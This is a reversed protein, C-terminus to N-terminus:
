MVISDIPSKVKVIQDSAVHTYIMTTKISNHGLLKQIVRIDTGGELLHTAFSHRLTHLTVPKQIGAKKTSRKVIKLASSRSYSASTQGEFLYERPQYKRFYERLLKRLNEPFMLQRDKKGKANYITVVGRSGDLDKVKLQILEGVRLGLSYITVLIAKHKLNDTVRILSTVEQKSLVVPLKFAKRTVSLVSLSVQRDYVLKYFLQTAGIVQKQYAYSMKKHYFLSFCLDQLFTDALRSWDKFKGSHQLLRLANIYVNITNHSYGKITLLKEFDKLTQIMSGCYGVM